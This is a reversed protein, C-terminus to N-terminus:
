PLPARAVEDVSEAPTPLLRERDLFAELEAAVLEHGVDTLHIKDTYLEGERSARFVAHLDLHATDLREAIAALQRQPYLTYDLDERLAADSLQPEYPVTVMAFRANMRHASDRIARIHDEQEPWTEPAWATRFENREWPYLVQEDRERTDARLRFAVRRLLASRQWWPRSTRRPGDAIIVWRGGEEIEHLFRYNDNLCYQHLVLDAGLPELDRELFRRQQYTTYGPIAANIVEVHRDPSAARLRRGLRHVFGDADWAVSDGIVLIRVGVAPDHRGLEEPHRIGLSNVGDLADSLKYNLAPDRVLWSTTADSRQRLTFEAVAALGALSIVFVITAFALRRM